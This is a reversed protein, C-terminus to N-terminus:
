DRQIFYGAQKSESEPWTVDNVLPPKVIIPRLELELEEEEKKGGEIMLKQKYYQIKIYM